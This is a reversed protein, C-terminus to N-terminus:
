QISGISSPSQVLAPIVCEPEGTSSTRVILKPIDHSGKRETWSSPDFRVKIHCTNPENTIQDVILSPHTCKASTVALPHGSRPRLVITRAEGRETSFALKDGEIYYDPLITAAIELPVAHEISPAASSRYIVHLLRQVTGRLGHTDLTAQITATEGPRVSSSRTEAVTCHCETAVRSIEIISRSNNRLTFQVPLRVGQAVEGMEVTSSAPQFDEVAPTLSAALLFASGSLLTAVLLSFGIWWIRDTRSM